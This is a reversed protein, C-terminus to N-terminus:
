RRLRAGNPLLKLESSQKTIGKKNIAIEWLLM